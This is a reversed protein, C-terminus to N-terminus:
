EGRVPIAINVYFETGQHSFEASGGYHEASSRISPIGLGSGGKKTSFYRGNRMNIHGGFGNTEVIYLWNGGQIEMSLEIFRDKGEAESAAAVANDLINGIMTCLEVDSITGQEGIDVRFSIDIGEKKAEAAYYNLIANLANNQCYMMSEKVPLERIYDSLYASVEETKGADAMNKLTRLTQRFDHRVRASDNIYKMQAYYQKEQLKLVNREQEAKAADLLTSVIYYFMVNTVTWVLLIISLIIIVTSGVKNVHFTEYKIPRMLINVALICGSFPLTMLWVKSVLLRDVLESGYKAFSYGVLLTVAAAAASLFASYDPSSSNIGLEPHRAADFSAAFNAMVSMLAMVDVFIAAAASVSARISRVYFIFCVFVAPFLLTNGGPSFLVDAVCILVALIMLLLVARLLTSRFSRRLQRRMPLCCLIGAPVIAVCELVDAIIAEKM